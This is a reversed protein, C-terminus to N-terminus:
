LVKQPGDSGWLSKAILTLLFSVFGPWEKHGFPSVIIQTTRVSISHLNKSGAKSLCKPITIGLSVPWNKSHLDEPWKKRRLPCFSPSQRHSGMVSLLTFHEDLFCFVNLVRRLRLHALAMDQKRWSAGGAEPSSVEISVPCERGRKEFYTIACVLFSSRLGSLSLVSLFTGGHTMWQQLMWSFSHPM